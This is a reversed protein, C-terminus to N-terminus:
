EPLRDKLVDLAAWRPDRTEVTCSCSSTNRDIGCVPCLGQCDPRCVPADPLELLVSERVMPALDIQDNEIPFADPDTRVVQYLERVVVSIRGTVPVLCRRCEGRFDAAVVGEVVVGDSLSSCTLQVDISSGPVIRDDAVGVVSPDISLEVPRESGPRRLLELANVLLPNKM